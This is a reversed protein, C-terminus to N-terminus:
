VDILFRETAKNLTESLLLLKNAHEEVENMQALQEETSAAVEQTSASTEEVSASINGMLDVIDNKRDNMSVSEVHIQEVSLILDKLVKSIERFADGTSQVAYNQEKTVETTLEVAKESEQSDSRIESIIARIEQVAGESQEALKRIEEAVVVFGRGAEGARAAEISANLALLNTQKSIQTITETIVDIKQGSEAMNGVAKVIVSTTSNTKETTDMLTEVADMGVGSLRGTETAITNMQHATDAVVEINQALGNIKDVASETSEAEENVAQSVEQITSSVEHIAIQTQEMINSLSNSFDFVTASSSKITGILEKMNTLMNNFSDALVKTEDRNKIHIEDIQLNGDSMQLLRESIRRIPTIMHKSFLVIIVLGIVISIAIIIFLMKLIDYSGSNYDQMYSGSSVIWGWDPEYEQYSIKEAIMDTGPLNWNYKLYDGGNVAVRIQEQVFKSGSKDEVDWVNQGELSPHMVELGTEDYIVFYGNQGLDINKNIQRKGESDKPGLLFVKVDEMAEEETIEGKAVQEQKADILQIAQKVSNKLIIEGKNDLESKAIRYSVFGTVALPIILLLSTILILKTRLSHTTSILKKQKM